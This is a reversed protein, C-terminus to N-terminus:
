LALQIKSSVLYFKFTAAQKRLMIETKECLWSLSGLYEQTQYPVDPVNALSVSLLVGGQLPLM